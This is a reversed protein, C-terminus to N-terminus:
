AVWRKRSRQHTLHQLADGMGRRWYRTIAANRSSAARIGGIRRGYLLALAATFHQCYLSPLVMYTGSPERQPKRATCGRTRVGPRSKFPLCRLSWNPPVETKLITPLLSLHILSRAKRSRQLSALGTGRCHGQWWDEGGPAVM